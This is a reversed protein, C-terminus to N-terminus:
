QPHKLAATAAQRFRRLRRTTTSGQKRQFRHAFYCVNLFILKRNVLHELRVHRAVRAVAVSERALFVEVISKIYTVTERLPAFFM